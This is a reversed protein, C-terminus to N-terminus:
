SAVLSALREIGADIQEESVMSFSLRVNDGGRDDPFFPAGPVIGVGQEVARRALDVADVGSPLTLWSFFGGEPHTWRVGDPMTRELAALMRECKRRYLRRSLVLQEEIWGRRVYEEFLRQGLAAACQDTNQKAVVLQASVEAPGVAWGLRVGPFFTKSTTGAQVVADPALGWLSPAPDDEFGLERYAVDEVILFGHRRALEVLATRRDASLSVGAPNQHDPIVYLLKPRLGAALRRELEDVDLGHEDIPVAVVEAEFSRFAMIAGLYTPAEVVVVDGRDLFAKGVLELAEMGGSTILLEDGAPRRGQLAEIRGALADLPGALGRTPAYQFAQAEGAAAFEALLAAARERPFTLPDPFGGAFSILDPVGLFALVAAIGEGVDGRTRQAFLSDWRRSEPTVAM